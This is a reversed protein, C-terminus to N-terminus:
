PLTILSSPRKRHNTRPSLERRAMRPMTVVELMRGSHTHGMEVSRPEGHADDYRLLFMLGDFLEEAEESTVGHRAIHTINEFDWDFETHNM